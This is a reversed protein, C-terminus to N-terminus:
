CSNQNEKGYLSDHCSIKFYIGIDHEDRCPHPQPHVYQLYQYDCNNIQLSM